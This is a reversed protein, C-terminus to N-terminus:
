VNISRFLLFIFKSYFVNVNKFFRFILSIINFRSMDILSILSVVKLRSIEIIFILTVINFWLVEILIILKKMNFM